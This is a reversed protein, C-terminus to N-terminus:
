ETVKRFVMWSIESGEKGSGQKQRRRPFHSEFM